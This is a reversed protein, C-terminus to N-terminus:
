KSQLTESFLSIVGLIMLTYVIELVPGLGEVGIASIDGMVRAFYLISAPMALGAIMAFFLGLAIYVKTKTTEAFFFVEAITALPMDMEKEPKEKDNDGEKPETKQLTDSM